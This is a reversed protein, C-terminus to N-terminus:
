RGIELAKQAMAKISNLVTINSEYARTAAMMEIMEQTTDVNPLMVDGNEDADPHSPDHVARFPSQDEVIGSVRVGSLAGDLVSKFGKVSMSGLVAIKRRYPGGNEARTTGSNAINQAIIDMRLRQASLASASIDLSGLFKM